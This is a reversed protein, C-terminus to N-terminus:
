KKAWISGISGIPGLQNLQVWDPRSNLGSQGLQVWNSGFRGWFHAGGLKGRWVRRFHTGAGLELSSYGPFSLNQPDFISWFTMLWLYSGPFSFKKKAYKQGWIVYIQSHISIQPTLFPRFLDIKPWKKARSVRPFRTRAVIRCNKPGFVGLFWCDWLNGSCIPNQPDFITM